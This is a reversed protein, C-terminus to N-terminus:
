IEAYYSFTYVESFTKYVLPNSVEPVHNCRKFGPSDLGFSGGRDAEGLSGILLVMAGAHTSKYARPYLNQPRNRGKIISCM